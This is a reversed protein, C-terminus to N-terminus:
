ARLHHERGARAIEGCVSHYSKDNLDYGIHDPAMGLQTYVKWAAVGWRERLETMNDFDGPFNPLAKGHLLLRSGQGLREVLTRIMDADEIRLSEDEHNTAQVSMCATHTDTILFMDKVYHDGDMFNLYGYEDGNPSHHAWAQKLQGIMKPGGPSTRWPGNPNIAHNQVDFIFEDGSLVAAAADEDNGASPDLDYYGGTRGRGAATANIALLTSAAASDSIMYARRGVGRRRANDSAARQAQDIAALEYSQLPQPVFEGNSTPDLKIPLREGEPDHRYRSYGM